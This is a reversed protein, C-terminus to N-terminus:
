VEDRSSLPRGGDVSWTPQPAGMLQRSSAMEITEAFESLLPISRNSHIESTHYLRFVLTPRIQQVQLLDGSAAPVMNTKMPEAELLRWRPLFNIAISILM